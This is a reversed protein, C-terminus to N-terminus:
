ISRETGEGLLPQARCSALARRNACGRNRTGCGPRDSQPCLAAALHPPSRLHHVPAGLKPGQPCAPWWSLLCRLTCLSHHAEGLSTTPCSCPTSPTCCVMTRRWRRRAQSALLTARTTRCCGPPPRLLWARPPPAQSSAVLAAGLAPPRTRSPPPAGKAPPRAPPRAPARRAPSGWGVALM